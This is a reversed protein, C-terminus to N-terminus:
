LIKNGKSMNDKAWLPQLNTYHCLKIIEEQSTASSLPIIHDIHWEGRNTWSMGNVFKSEMYEKFNNYNMGVISETKMNFKTYGQKRFSNRILNRLRVKMAFVDDNEWRRKWRKYNSDKEKQKKIEKYEDTKYYQRKREWEMKKQISLEKKIRIEEKRIERRRNIEEKKIIEKERNIEEKKIKKENSNKQRHKVKSEKVSKKGNESQRWIKQYEKYSEKSKRKNNKCASCDGCDVNRFIVYTKSPFKEFPLINNCTKCKKLGEKFLKEEETLIKSKERREKSVIYECKKCVGLYYKKFIRFECLEKNEMCKNCVKKGDENVVLKKKLPGRLEIYKKKCCEKCRYSYYGRAFYYNELPKSDNCCNCTIYGSSIDQQKYKKEM